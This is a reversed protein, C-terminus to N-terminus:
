LVRMSKFCLQVAFNGTVSTTFNVINSYNSAGKENYAFMRLFYLSSHDLGKVTKMFKKYNSSIGGALQTKNEWNESDKSLLIVFTQSFGGEFGAIWSVEVDSASVLGVSVDYPPQPPGIIFFTKLYSNWVLPGYTMDTFCLFLALIIYMVFATNQNKWM